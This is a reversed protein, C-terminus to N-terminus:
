IHLFIAVIVFLASFRLVVLYRTKILLKDTNNAQILCNVLILSFNFDNLTLTIMCNILQLSKLHRIKIYVSFSMNQCAGKGEVSQKPGM